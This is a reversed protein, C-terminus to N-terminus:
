KRVFVKLVILKGRFLVKVVDRVNRFSYWTCKSFMVIILVLM